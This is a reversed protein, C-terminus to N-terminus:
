GEFLIILLVHSYLSRFPQFKWCIPFNSLATAHLTTFDSAGPEYNERSETSDVSDVYHFASINRSGTAGIKNQCQSTEASMLLSTMVGM